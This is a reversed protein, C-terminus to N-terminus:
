LDVRADQHNGQFEQGATPMGNQKTLVFTVTTGAVKGARANSLFAGLDNGITTCVEPDDSAVVMIQSVLSDITGVQAAGFVAFKAAAPTQGHVKDSTKITAPNSGFWTCAPLALFLLTCRNSTAGMSGGSAISLFM